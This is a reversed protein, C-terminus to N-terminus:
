SDSNPRGATTLNAASRGVVVVPCPALHVCQRVLSAVARKHAGGPGIESVVLLDAGECTALLMRVTSVCRARQKFLAGEGRREVYSSTLQTVRDAKDDCERPRHPSEENGHSSECIFVAEVQASRLMAEEIAWHLSDSGLVDDIEVVVRSPHGRVSGQAVTHVIVVPCSAHQACSQSVSGLLFESLAGRGRAGVVLLDAVESAATLVAAVSGLHVEGRVVVTPDLSEASEVANHAIMTSQEMDNDVTWDLSNDSGIPAVCIARVVANRLKAESVAWELASRSYRSGDVGVVIERESSFVNTARIRGAM